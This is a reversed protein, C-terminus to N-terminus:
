CVGSLPTGGQTRTNDISINWNFCPDGSPNQRTATATFGGGGGNVVVSYTMPVGFTPNDIYIANWYCQPPAAPGTCPCGTPGPSATPSCYVNNNMTWYVQEGAYLAQLVDLSARWRSREITRRYPIIAAGAAIGIIVAVILLEQLTFGSERRMM